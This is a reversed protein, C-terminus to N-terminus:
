PDAPRVPSRMTAQILRLADTEFTSAAFDFVGVGELDRRALEERYPFVFDLPIGADAMCRRLIDADGPRVKNAVVRIARVGLSSAM